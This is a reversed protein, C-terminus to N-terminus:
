NAQAKQLLSASLIDTIIIQSLMPNTGSHTTEGEVTPCHVIGHCLQALTSGKPTVGLVTAGQKRANQAINITTASEGSYSFLLVLSQPNLSAISAQQFGSDHHARVSAQYPSLKYQADLAVLSSSGSGYIEIREASTLLNIAHELESSDLDQGLRHLQQAANSCVKQAITARPDAAGLHNQTQNSALSTVLQLKFNQYGKCGMSRCFRIVTPESVGAKQSLLAISLHVVEQPHVLIYQGVKAESPNLEDITTSLIALVDEKM